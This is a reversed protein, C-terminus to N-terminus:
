SSGRRTPPFDKRAVLLTPPISLLAVPDVYQEPHRASSPIPDCPRRCPKTWNSTCLTYGDPAARIVRAVGISGTPELWM